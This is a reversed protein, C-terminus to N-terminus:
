CQLDTAVVPSGAMHAQLPGLLESQSPRGTLLHPQTWCRRSIALSDSSSAADGLSRSSSNPTGPARVRSAINSALTERSINYVLNTENIRGSAYLTGWVWEM